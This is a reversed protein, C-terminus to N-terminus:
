FDISAAAPWSDGALWTLELWDVATRSYLVEVTGLLPSRSLRNCHPVHM